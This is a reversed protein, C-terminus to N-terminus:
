ISEGLEYLSRAEDFTLDMLNAHRFASITLEIVRDKPVQESTGISLRNEIERDWLDIATNFFALALVRRDYDRHPKSVLGLAKPLDGRRNKIDDMDILLVRELLMSVIEMDELDPYKHNTVATIYNSMTTRVSEPSWTAPLESPSTECLDRVRVSDLEAQGAEDFRKKAIEAPNM